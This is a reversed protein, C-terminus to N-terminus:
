IKKSLATQIKIVENKELTILLEPLHREMAGLLDVGKRKGQWVDTGERAIKRGVLFALGEETINKFRGKASEYIDPNKQVWTLMRDPPPFKGPGRGYIMYQFWDPAFLSGGLNNTEIRFKDTPVKPNEIGMDHIIAEFYKRIAEM